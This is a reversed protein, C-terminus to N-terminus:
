WGMNATTVPLFGRDLIAVTWKKLYGLSDETRAFWEADRSMVAIAAMARGRRNGVIAAVSDIDARMHKNAAYGSELVKVIEAIQEGERGPTHIYTIIMAREGGKARGDSIKVDRVDINLSQLTAKTTLSIEADSAAYLLSFNVFQGYVIVSTCLAVLIRKKM